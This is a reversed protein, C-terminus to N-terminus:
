TSGKSPTKLLFNITRKNNKLAYAFVFKKIFGYNDNVDLQTVIATYIQATFSFICM